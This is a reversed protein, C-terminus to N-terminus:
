CLVFILVHKAFWGRLQGFSLEVFLLYNIGFVFLAQMVDFPTSASCRLFDCVQYCEQSSGQTIFVFDRDEVGEFHTEVGEFIPRM